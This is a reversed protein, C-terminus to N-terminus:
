GTKSISKLFSRDNNHVTHRQVRLPKNKKGDYSRFVFDDYIQDPKIGHMFVIALM